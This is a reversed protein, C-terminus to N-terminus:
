TSQVPLPESASINTILIHCIAASKCTPQRSEKPHESSSNKKKCREKRMNQVQLQRFLLLDPFVYTHQNTTPLLEVVSSLRYSLEAHGSM